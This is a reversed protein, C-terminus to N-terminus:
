PAERREPGYPYDDFGTQIVEYQHSERLLGPLGLRNAINEDADSPGLPFYKPNENATDVHSQERLTPHLHYHGVVYNAFTNPIVLEHGFEDALDRSLAKLLGAGYAAQASGGQEEEVIRQGIRWYADVMISNVANVAAVRAQTLIVRMDEFFSNDSLEQMIGMKDPFRALPLGYAWDEEAVGNWLFFRLGTPNERRSFRDVLACRLM